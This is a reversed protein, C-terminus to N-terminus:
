IGPIFQSLDMDPLLINPDLWFLIYCEQGEDWDNLTNWGDIYGSDGTLFEPTAMDVHFNWKKDFHYKEAVIVLYEQYITPKTSKTSNWLFGNM